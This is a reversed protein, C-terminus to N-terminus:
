YILIFLLLHFLVVVCLRLQAPGEDISKDIGAPRGTRPGLWIFIMCLKKEVIIFIFVVIINFLVVVVTSSVRRYPIQDFLMPKGDHGLSLLLLLLLLLGM